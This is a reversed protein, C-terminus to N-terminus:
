SWRGSLPTPPSAISQFRLLRVRDTDRFSVLPMLGQELIVESTKYTLVTEACPKMKTEGDEQYIHLPLGDIDQLLGRAMDWGFSRFSQALLIACAFAPNAWCYHEHLPTSSLEEFAFSEAPDTDAGYPLRVLFRPIALGIHSSEPLSRLAGWLQAEPTNEINQWDDSDPSDALSHCGLVDPRSHAIFPTNSAQALKGIRSLAAIDDVTPKFDYNGCVFAYPEGGPTEITEEIIWKYLASKSLDNTSKLDAELEDKTVDLLYLKLDIDTDVRRVLLFAARWAAELAQFYPHHLISRMLESTAEDVAAVLRSQEQEDTKILYPKVADSILSNIERMDTTKTKAPATATQAESLLMELLDDPAERPTFPAPTEAVPTEEEKTEAVGAWARVEEAAVDFTAPNLLRKRTDRLQSFIPVQQFIRDPHFDELDTFRFRLIFDKGTQLDLEVRMKKMVEEFNDRDIAVPRRSALDGNTGNAKNGRGSWDGLLLVKFPADDPLANSDVGFKVETEHEPSTFTPM